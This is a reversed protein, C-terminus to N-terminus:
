KIAIDELIGLSGPPKAKGDMKAQARAQMDGVDQDSDAVEEKAIDLDM